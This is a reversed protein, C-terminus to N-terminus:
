PPIASTTRSCRGFIGPASREASDAAPGVRRRRRRLAAPRGVLVAAQVRLGGMENLMMVIDGSVTVHKELAAQAELM